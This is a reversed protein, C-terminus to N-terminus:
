DSDESSVTIVRLYGKSEGGWSSGGSSKPTARGSPCCRRPSARRGGRFPGEGAADAGSPGAGGEGGRAAELFPRLEAAGLGQASGPRAGSRPVPVRM